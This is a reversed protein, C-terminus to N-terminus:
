RNLARRQERNLKAKDVESTAFRRAGEELKPALFDVLVEIAREGNENVTMLSMGNLIKDFDNNGGFVGNLIEKFRRDTETLLNLSAKSHEMKEADSNGCEPLANAKKRQEEEVAKMEDMANVFRTYLNADGDSFTLPTGGEVLQYSKVGFNLIASEM